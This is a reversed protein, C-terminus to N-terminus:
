YSQKGQIEFINDWFDNVVEKKKDYYVLPSNRQIRNTYVIRGEFQIVKFVSVVFSIALFIM